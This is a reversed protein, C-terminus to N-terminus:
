EPPEKARERWNALQWHAPDYLTPWDGGWEMAIGLMHAVEKGIHGIVAWQDVSMEWGYKSHIVDVACRQHPYGEAPHAKSRKEMYARAQVEPTRVICHPFMPIGIERLRKIFAKEFKLILPHAGERVARWQQEQYVESRLYEPDSLAQIIAKADGPPTKPAKM